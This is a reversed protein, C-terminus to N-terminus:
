SCRQVERIITQLRSNEVTLPITIKISNSEITIRLDENRDIPIELKVPVVKQNLNDMWRTFTSQILNNEKCYKHISQKSHKWSKIHEEWFMHNKRSM